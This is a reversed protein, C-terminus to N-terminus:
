ITQIDDSLKWLKAHLYRTVIEIEAGGFDWKGRCVIPFKISRRETEGTQLNQALSGGLM